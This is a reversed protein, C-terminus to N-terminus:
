RMPLIGRLEIALVLASLIVLFLGAEQLRDAASAPVVSVETPRRHLWLAACACTVAATVWLSGTMMGFGVGILYQVISRSMWGPAIGPKLIFLALGILGVVIMFFGVGSIQAQPWGESPHWGITWIIVTVGASVTATAMLACEVSRQWESRPNAVVAGVMYGIVAGGVADTLFHSGRLIRSIAIAGALAFLCWRGRPFRAAFVTALAFSAAAHGSPFSDWGSGAVPSLTFQGSHMFKPRPRGVLHKVLNSILAAVAHAGLSRWGANKWEGRKLWFGVALVVLSIIVLSEGRGLRDGVDSLQALWPDALHDIHVENLSRVFRTLPVDWDSLGLFALV